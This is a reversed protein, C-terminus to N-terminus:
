KNEPANPRQFFKGFILRIKPPKIPWQSYNPRIKLMKKKAAFFLIPKNKIALFLSGFYYINIKKLSKRAM